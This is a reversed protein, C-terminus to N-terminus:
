SLSRHLQGHGRARMMKVYWERDNVSPNKGCTTQKRRQFVRIFFLKKSQSQSLNTSTPAPCYFPIGWNQPCMAALSHQKLWGSFFDCAQVAPRAEIGSLCAVIISEPFKGFACYKRGVHFIQDAHAPIKEQRGTKDELTKLAWSLSCVHWLVLVIRALVLFSTYVWLNSLNLGICPSGSIEMTYVTYIYTSSLSHFTLNFRHERPFAMQCFFHRM